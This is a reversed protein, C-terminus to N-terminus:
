VKRSTPDVLVILQELTVPQGLTEGFFTFGFYHSRHGRGIRARVMSADAGFAADFAYRYESHTGGAQDTVGLSTAEPVSGEAYAYSLHKMQATGLDSQGFDIRFVVSDSGTFDAVAGDVTAILKGNHVGIASVDGPLTAFRSMGLTAVLATYINVEDQRVTGWGVNISTVLNAGSMAFVRDTTGTATDVLLNSLTQVQTADGAGTNASTVTNRMVGANIANGSGSGAVAFVEGISARNVDQLLAADTVTQTALLAFETAHTGIAADVATNRLQQTTTLVAVGQNSSVVTEPVRVGSTDVLKAADVIANSVAIPSISLTAQASDVVYSVQVQTEAASGVGAVALVVGVLASTTDSATAYVAATEVFGQLTGGSGVSGDDVDDCIPEAM